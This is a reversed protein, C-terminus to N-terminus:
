GGAGVAEAQKARIGAGIAKLIAERVEFHYDAGNDIPDVTMVFRDQDGVNKLEDAMSNLVEEDSVKAAFSLIPGLAAYMEAPTVAQDKQSADISKRVKAVVDDGMGFYISEQSVGITLEISDGFVARADAEEEEVPMTVKHFRVGAHQDVNFEMKPFEPNNGAMQGLEKLSEELKGGDVVHMGGIVQPSGSEFSMTFAGDTKGDRLTAELMDFIADAMHKAVTRTSDNPLDDTDDIETMLKTRLPPLMALAQDIDEQMIRGATRMSVAADEQYFGGFNTKTDQIGSMQRASRTGPIAVVRTDIAVKKNSQDTNWGLQIYDMENFIAEWQRIQNKIVSEQLELNEGEEPLMDMQSQVGEKIQELAMDRYSQPINQIYGRVGVDYDKDIGKLMSTPDGPLDKLDSTSTAVFAWGDQEKVFMATPGALELIGDGADQPEGLQQALGALFQKLDKIPLMGFPKVEDGDSQVVIAIPRTEDLGQIYGAAVASAISGYQQNGTATALYNVDSLLGEVSAVSVILVPKTEASVKECSFPGFLILAILTLSIGLTRM